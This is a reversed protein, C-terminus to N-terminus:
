PCCCRVTKLRSKGCPLTVNPLLTSLVPLQLMYMTIITPEPEVSVTSLVLMVPGVTFIVAGVVPADTAPATVIAALAVLVMRMVPTCNWTSPFDIAAFSVDDGYLVDHADVVIALPVCVRVAMAVSACPCELLDDSCTFTAFLVPEVPPLVGGGVPVCAPQYTVGVPLLPALPLAVDGHSRVVASAPAPPRM